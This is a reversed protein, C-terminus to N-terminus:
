ARYFEALRHKRSAGCQVCRVIDAPRDKVLAAILIGGIFSLLGVFFLLVTVMLFLGLLILFVAVLSAAVSQGKVTFAVVRGNCRECPPETVGDGPQGAGCFRCKIAKANINETCSGCQKLAEASEAEGV